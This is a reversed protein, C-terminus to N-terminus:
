KKSLLAEIKARMAEADFLGQQLVVKGDTGILYGCNPASGYAKWTANDLADVAVTAKLDFERRCERANQMRQEDTVPQLISVGGNENEPVVAPGDPFTYPSNGDRPHAEVVYLIVFNVRDEFENMLKQQPTISSRFIPCSYSGTTLVVPKEKWLESAIVKGGRARKLDFDPASEGPKPGTRSFFENIIARVKPSHFSFDPEEQAFGISCLVLFAPILHRHTFM